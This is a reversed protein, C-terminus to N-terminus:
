MNAMHADGCLEKTPRLVYYSARRSHFLGLYLFLSLSLVSLMSPATKKSFKKKYQYFIYLLNVM